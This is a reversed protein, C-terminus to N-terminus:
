GAEAPTPVHHGWLTFRSLHRQRWNEDVRFGETGVEYEFGSPTRGYFSYVGETHRGPMHTVEIGASRTRDWALGVDDISPMHVEFHAIRKVAPVGGALAISHHRPNCYLFVASLVIGAWEEAGTDSVSMGIVDTYFPVAAELDPMVLILHGMGMDGTVFGNSQVASGFPTPSTKLGLCLELPHGWPDKFRVLHDVHRARLEDPTGAQPEIGAGRLRACLADFEARDYAALGVACVDDATGERVFMRQAFEDLRYGQSGDSNHSGPMMGIVQTLLRDWAPRDSVEFGLYALELRATM